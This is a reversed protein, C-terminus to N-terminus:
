KQLLYFSYTATQSIGIFLNPIGNENNSNSLFSRFATKKKWSSFFDEANNKKRVGLTVKIYTIFSQVSNNLYDTFRAELTLSTLFLPHLKNIKYHCFPIDVVNKIFGLWNRLRFKMYGWDLYGTRFLSVRIYCTWISM